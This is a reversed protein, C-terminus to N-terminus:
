LHNEGTVMYINNQKLTQWNAPGSTQFAADKTKQSHKASYFSTAHITKRQPSEITSQKKKSVIKARKKNKPSDRELKLPTINGTKNGNIHDPSSVTLKHYSTKNPSFRPPYAM